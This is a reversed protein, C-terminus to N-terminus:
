IFLIFRFVYRYAYNQFCAVFDAISRFIRVFFSRPKTVISPQNEEIQPKPQECLLFTPTYLTHKSFNLPVDLLPNVRRKFHRKNEEMRKAYVIQDCITDNSVTSNVPVIYQMDGSNETITDISNNYNPYRHFPIKHTKSSNNMSKLFEKYEETNITVDTSDCSDALIPDSKIEQSSTLKSTATTSSDQQMTTNKWGVMETTDQNHPMAMSQVNSVSKYCHTKMNEETSSKDTDREAQLESQATLNVDKMSDGRKVHFKVPTTSRGHVSIVSKSEKIPLNICMAENSSKRGENIKFEKNTNCSGSLLTTWSNSNELKDLAFFYILSHCPKSKIYQGGFKM